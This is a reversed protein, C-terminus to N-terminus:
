RLPRTLYDTARALTHADDGAAHVEIDIRRFRANPTDAIRERWVYDRRAQTVRGEGRGPAPFASAARYRALRDHAIWDAVMRARLDAAALAGAGLSRLTAVLAVAVIALAILVELLTFGADRRM